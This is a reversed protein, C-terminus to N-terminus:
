LNGYYDDDDISRYIRFDRRKFYPDPRDTDLDATEMDGLSIGGASPVPVSFGSTKSQKELNEALKYYQESINSYDVSVEDFETKAFGAFKAAITRAAIAGAAYINNGTQLLAFAIIEDTVLQNNTDTDSILVRVADRREDDTGTGPSNGFTWAM